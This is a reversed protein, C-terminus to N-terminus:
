RVRHRRIGRTDHGLVCGVRRAVVVCRGLTAEAQTATFVAASVHTLHRLREATTTVLIRRPEGHRSIVNERSHLAFLFPGIPGKKM